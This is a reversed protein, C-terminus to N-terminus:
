QELNLWNGSRQGLQKVGKVRRIGAALESSLLGLDPAEYPAANVLFM